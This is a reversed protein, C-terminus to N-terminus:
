PVVSAHSVDAAASPPTEADAAASPATEADADEADVTEFLSRARSLIVFM